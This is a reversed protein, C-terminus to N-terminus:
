TTSHTTSDIAGTRPATAPSARASRTRSQRRRTLDSSSPSGPPPSSHARRLTDEDSYELAWTTDFGSEPEFGAQTAIQELVGPKAYDPEPPANAPRPPAVALELDALARQRLLRDVLRDRPEALDEGDGLFAVQDRAVRHADVRPIALELGLPAPGDVGPWGGYWLRSTAPGPAWPVQCGRFSRERKPWGPQSRSELM